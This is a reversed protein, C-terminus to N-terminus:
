NKKEQPLVLCPMNRVYPLVIEDKSTIAGDEQTLVGEESEDLVFPEDVSAGPGTVAKTKLKRLRDSSRKKLKPGNVMRPGDMMRPGGMMRPRPGGMMRPGHMMRPGDTVDVNVNEVQIQEAVENQKAVENQQAVETEAVFVPVEFNNAVDTPQIEPMSAFVEDPIDGFM